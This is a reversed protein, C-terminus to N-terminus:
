CGGGAGEYVEEWIEGKRKLIIYDWSSYNRKQIIVECIGDGDLDIVDGFRYVHSEDPIGPDPFHSFVQKYGGDATPKLILTLSYQMNPNYDGRIVEEGIILYNVLYEPKGDGDLDTARIDTVELREAIGKAVGRKIFESKAYEYLSKELITDVSFQPIIRRPGLTAVALGHGTFHLNASDTYSVHVESVVPSCSHVTDVTTIKATGCKNGDIYLELKRGRTYEEKCFRKFYGDLIQESNPDDFAEAPTPVPYSFEGKTIRVAPDIILNGTIGNRDIFYLVSGTWKKQAFSCEGVFLIGISLALYTYTKIIM